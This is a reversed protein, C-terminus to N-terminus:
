ADSAVVSVFGRKSAFRGIHKSKCSNVTSAREAYLLDDLEELLTSTPALQVSGRSAALFSASLADAPRYPHSGFSFESLMLSAQLSLLSQRLDESALEPLLLVFDDNGVRFAAGAHRKAFCDLERALRLLAKDGLAYGLHDNAFVFSDLDVRVIWAFESDSALHAELGRWNKLGTFQDVSQM